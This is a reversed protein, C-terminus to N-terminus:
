THALQCVHGSIDLSISLIIKQIILIAAGENEEYVNEQGRYIEKGKLELSIVVNFPIHKIFMFSKLSCM